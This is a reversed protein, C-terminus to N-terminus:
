SSPFRFARYPLDVENFDMFAASSCHYGNGSFFIHAMKSIVGGNSIAPGGGDGSTSDEFSSNFMYVTGSVSMSGGIGASSGVFTTNSVFDNGATSYIAGGTLSASNGEFRCGYFKSVHTYSAM